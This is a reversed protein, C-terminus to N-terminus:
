STLWAVLLAERDRATSARIGAMPRAARSGCYRPARALRRAAEAFLEPVNSADIRIQVEGTHQLLAHSAMVMYGHM